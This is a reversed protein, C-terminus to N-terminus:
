STRTTLLFRRLLTRVEGTGVNWRKKWHHLWMVSASFGQLHLRQEVEMAKQILDKNQVVRGESREVELFAFVECDVQQSFFSQVAM